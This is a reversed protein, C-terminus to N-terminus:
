DEHICQGREMQMVREVFRRVEYRRPEKGDLYERIGEELPGLDVVAGLELRRAAILELLSRGTRGRAAASLVRVNSWLYPREFAKSSSCASYTPDFARLRTACADLTALPARLDIFGTLVLRHGRTVAAAAHVQLM